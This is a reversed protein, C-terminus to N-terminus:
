ERNNSNISNNYEDTTTHFKSFFVQVHPKFFHFCIKEARSSQLETRILSSFQKNTPTFKIKKIGIGFIELRSAITFIRSEDFKYFPHKPPELNQLQESEHPVLFKQSQIGFVNLFHIKLEAGMPANFSADHLDNGFIRIIGRWGSISDSQIWFVGWGELSINLPTINGKCILDHAAKCYVISPKRLWSM